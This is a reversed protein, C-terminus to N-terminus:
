GYNVNGMQAPHPIHTSLQKNMLAQDASGTANVINEIMAKTTNNARSDNITDIPSGDRNVRQGTVPNTVTGDGSLKDGVWSIKDGVWDTFGGKPNTINTARMEPTTM